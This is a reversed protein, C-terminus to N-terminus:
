CNLSCFFYIFYYFKFVQTFHFFFFNIFIMRVGLQASWPSVRTYGAYELVTETIFSLNTYSLANKSNSEMNVERIYEILYSRVTNPAWTMSEKLIDVVRHAYDQVIRQM